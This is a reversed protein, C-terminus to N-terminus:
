WESEKSQLRRLEKVTKIYRKYLDTYLKNTKRLAEDSEKKNRILRKIGSTGIDGIAEYMLKNMSNNAEGSKDREKKINILIIASVIGLIDTQNLSNEEILKIAARKNM